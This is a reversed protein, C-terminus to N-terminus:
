ILGVWDLVLVWNFAVFTIVAPKLIDKFANEPSWSNWYLFWQFAALFLLGLDIITKFVGNTVFSKFNAQSGTEALALEPLFLVALLVIYFSANKLIKEKM